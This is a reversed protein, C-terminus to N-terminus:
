KRGTGGCDDCTVWEADAELSSLRFGKGNCRYCPKGTKPASSVAPSAGVPASSEAATSVTSPKAPGTRMQSTTESAGRGFYPSPAAEEDPGFFRQSDEKERHEKPEGRHQMWSSVAQSEETFPNKVQFRGASSSCGALIIPTVFLAVRRHSMLARRFIGFLPSLSTTPSSFTM